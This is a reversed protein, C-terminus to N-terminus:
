QKFHKKIQYNILPTEFFFKRGVALLVVLLAYIGAVIFFGTATDDLLKGLYLALGISLFIFIFLSFLGIIVGTIIKSIIESSKEIFDIRIIEIRNLAYEKIKEFLNKDKFAQDEMSNLHNIAPQIVAPM